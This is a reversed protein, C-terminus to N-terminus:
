QAGGRLSARLRDELAYYERRADGEITSLKQAFFPNDVVRAEEEDLVLIKKGLFLAESLSHTILFYGLEQEHHLSLLLENLQERTYEDLASFPEDLLLMQPETILARGLAVRQRQGGSLNNINAQEYGTLGLKELLPALASKYEKGQIQMAMIINERVNKWPYLSHSQMLLHIEPIPAVCAKEKFTVSGESPRLLGAMLHLLTSKGIGSPGICVWPEKESIEMSLDRIIADQGYSFSLNTFKYM